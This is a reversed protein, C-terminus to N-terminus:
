SLSLKEFGLTTAPALSIQEMLSGITPHHGLLGQDRTVRVSPPLRDLSRTRPSQERLMNAPVIVVISTAQLSLSKVVLTTALYLISVEPNCVHSTSACHIEEAAFNPQEYM